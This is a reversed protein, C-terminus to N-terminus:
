EEDKTDENKEEKVENEAIFKDDERPQEVVSREGWNMM